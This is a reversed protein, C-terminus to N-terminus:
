ELNPTDLLKLIRQKLIRQKRRLKLLQLEQTTEEEEETSTEDEPPGKYPTPLDM